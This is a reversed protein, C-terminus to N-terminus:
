DKASSRIQGAIREPLMKKRIRRVGLAVLLVVVPMCVAVILDHRGVLGAAALGKVLYSLLGILYYSIAVVSIGEVTEQMRLQLLARRNMSQLVGQNQQQRAVDIRTSLLQSTQAVRYSLKEQRSSIAMCTNMAPSLRREIFDRFTQVGDLRRERLEETRRQILRYYAEAASFRGATEFHRKQIVAELRTLQDLLRPEDITDQSALTTTISVLEAESASLFPGLARAQPLAMLSLIRYADIELVRQVTRGAQRPAMRDSWMMLRGFGDGHIRFDTFASGAGDAILAGVMLNGAFWRASLADIDPRPVDAGVLEVHTAMFPKGPLTALWDAPVADIAFRSFPEGSRGGQIFKYRTFETHREWKLKFPGLDISLHNANEDPLPAGFKTCLTRVPEIHRKRDNDTHFLALFSIRAPAVLAEPPRAHVEDNLERRLPHEQPLTIM